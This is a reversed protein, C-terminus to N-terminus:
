THDRISHLVIDGERKLSSVRGQLVDKIVMKATLEHMFTRHRCRNRKGLTTFLIPFFVANQFKLVGQAEWNFPDLRQCRRYPQSRFVVIQPLVVFRTSHLGPVPESIFPLTVTKASPRILLGLFHLSSPFPHFPLM